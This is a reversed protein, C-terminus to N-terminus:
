EFFCFFGALPGYLWFAIRAVTLSHLERVRWVEGGGLERPQVREDPEGVGRVCHDSVGVGRVCRDSVGGGRVGEAREGVGREGLGLAKRQALGAVAGGRAVGALAAVRM